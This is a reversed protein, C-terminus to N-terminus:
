STSYVEMLKDIQFVVRYTQKNQEYLDQTTQCAESTIMYKCSLLDVIFRVITALQISWDKIRSPVFLQKKTYRKISDEHFTKYRFM